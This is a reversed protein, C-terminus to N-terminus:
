KSKRIKIEVIFAKILIILSVLGSIIPYIVLVKATNLRKDIYPKIPEISNKFKDILNPTLNIANNIKTSVWLSLIITIIISSVALVWWLKRSENKFRNTTTMCKM